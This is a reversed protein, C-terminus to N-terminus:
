FAQVGQKLVRERYRPWERQVSPWDEVKKDRREMLLDYVPKSAAKLEQMILEPDKISMGEFGRRNLLVMTNRAEVQSLRALIDIVETKKAPTLEIKEEFDRVQKRGQRVKPALTDTITDRMIERNISDAMRARELPHERKDSKSGYYQTLAWVQQDKDLSKLWVEAEAPRGRDDMLQKYETAAMTMEGGERSIMTYMEAVSESQRAAEGTVGRLLPFDTAKRDPRTSMGAVTKATQYSNQVERGWYAGAASLVFDTKVPAPILSPPVGMQYMARSLDIAFESSFAHYREHPPRSALNEGVIERSRGAFVGQRDRNFMIGGALRMVQPLGPPALVEYMSDVVREAARQDYGRYKDWMIEGINSPVALEFPKPLRFWIGLSKFWSHTWKTTDKIDQYDDDDGALAYLGMLMLSIAGWRLYSKYADALDRQEDRSLIDNSQHKFVIALHKGLVTGRDGQASMQRLQKDLGQIQANLFTVLRTAALMKSGRRNWDLIDRSVFAAETIAEMDSLDPNHAKARKYAHAAVGLRTATEFSEVVRWVEGHRAGYGGGIGGVLGGVTAGVKFGVGAGVPGGFVLGLMSGISSGAAVGTFGLLAAGAAVAKKDINTDMLAKVDRKSNAVEVNLNMGGAVGGAENYLRRFDEGAMGDVSGGEGILRFGRAQTIVPVAGTLKWATWMDRWINRFIFDPHSTVGIRLMQAPLALAKVLIDSMEKGLGNIAEFLDRGFAPDPLRVMVREGNEWLPLQPKATPGLNEPSLIVRIDGDSFNMEMRQTIMHADLPDIGLDIAMQKIKGFTEDNAEMNEARALREAVKGGGPGVREALGVMTKVIDNFAIQQATSYAEESLVELPMLISRDSGDFKKFMSWKKVGSGPFMQGAGEIDSMDRWFPVYWDRRKALEDFLEQSIFGAQRRAELLSFTFDHVLKAAEQFEPTGMERIVREHVARPEATPPRSAGASQARERDRGLRTATEDLQAIQQRGKAVMDRRQAIEAELTTSEVGLESVERSLNEVLRLAQQQDREALQRSRQRRAVMNRYNESVARSAVPDAIEGALRFAEDAEFIDDQIGQLRDQTNELRTEATGLMRRRDSLLANTRTLADQRRDLTAQDRAIREAITPRAAALRALTDDYQKVTAAKQDLRNYEEIARISVLYQNFAKYKAMDFKGDGMARDLAAKLSPGIIQGTELDSVGKELWARGRSFAGSFLRLKKYFNDNVKISIPRGDADRIGNADATKLLYQVGKAAVNLGDIVGQYASSLKGSVNDLAKDASLERWTTGDYQSSLGAAVEGIPASKIYRQYEQQVTDFAGLMDPREAELLEEFAETMGPARAEAAQPDLIYSEFWRAFGESLAAPMANPDGTLAEAYSQKVVGLDAGLISELYHGGEHALTKIDRSQRVSVNGTERDFQGRVNSPPRVRASRTYTRGDKSVQDQRVTFGWLGQSVPMGLTKRLDSIIKNLGPSDGEPTAQPPTPRLSPMWDRLAFMPQAGRPALNGIDFPRVVAATQKELDARKIIELDRPDHRKLLERYAIATRENRSARVRAETEGNRLHLYLNDGVLAGFQPDSGGIIETALARIRAKAATADKQLKTEGPTPPPRVRPSADVDVRRSLPSGLLEAVDVNRLTVTPAEAFGEDVLRAWVARITEASELNVRAGETYEDEPRALWKAKERVNVDAMALSRAAGDTSVGRLVMEKTLVNNQRLPPRSNIVEDYIEGVREMGPFSAKIGQEALLIDADATDQTTWPASTRREASSMDLRDMVNRAEVEGYAAKYAQEVVRGGGWFDSHLMSTSTVLADRAEHLAALRNHGYGGSEAKKIESEIDSIAIANQEAVVKPASGRSFGEVDQIYHQVEHAIIKRLTTFDDVDNVYARIAGGDIGGRTGYYEGFGVELPADRLAPYNQYLQGHKYFDGLRGNWSGQYRRMVGDFTDEQWDVNTTDITAKSDDIEFRWKNDRGRYWGTKEFISKMSQRQSALRQAEGLASLDAGLARDGAISAMLLGGGDPMRVIQQDEPVDYDLWPARNARQEPTLSLRKQVTRSEVEGAFRRYIADAISSPTRIDVTTWSTDNESASFDAMAAAYEPTEMATRPSAGEAFGEIDQLGHQAEHLVTSRRDKAKKSVTLTSPLIGGPQFSGEFSRSSDRNFEVEAMQPYAKFLEEHTLELQLLSFDPGFARLKSKSDDIEFRWRGDVGKFWGTQKWIDERPEGAADMEKAANLANLDATTAREGAFAAMIMPPASGGDPSFRRKLDARLEADQAEVIPRLRDIEAKMAERMEPPDSLAKNYKASLIDYQTAYDEGAVALQYQESMLTQFKTGWVEEIAPRPGIAMAIVGNEGMWERTADIGEARRAEAEEFKRVFDGAWISEFIDNASRFGLGNLANQIAELFDRIKMFVREIPAAFQRGNAWDAAAHAVTEEILLDENGNLFDGYRADIQYLQRYTLKGAQGIQADYAEQDIKGNALLSDLIRTAEAKKPRRLAIGALADWEKGKLINLRRLLHIEEHTFTQLAVDPGYELSVAILKKASGADIGLASMAAEPSVTAGELAAMRDGLAARLTSRVALGADSPLREALRQLAGVVMQADLDRVRLNSPSVEPSFGHLLASTLDNGRREAAARIAPMTALEFTLGTMIPKGNSGLRGDAVPSIYNVWAEIEDMGAQKAALVRRHGDIVRLSGDERQVVEIPPARLGDRLWQAYRVDDGRKMPDLGNATEPTSLDAIKVKVLHEIEQGHIGKFPDIRWSGLPPLEGAFPVERSSAKKTEGEVYQSAIASRYAAGDMYAARDAPPRVGGFLPSQDPVPEGVYLEALQQREGADLRRDAAIAGVAADVATGSRALAEYHGKVVPDDISNLTRIAYSDAPPAAAIQIRSDAANDFPMASGGEFQSSTDSISSGSTRSSRSEPRQQTMSGLPSINRSDSSPGQIGRPANVGGAASSTDSFKAAMEPLSASLKSIDARADELGAYGSNRLGAEFANTYLRNSSLLDARYEDYRAKLEDGSANRWKEFFQHGGQKKAVDMDAFVIYWEILQGNPARLDFGAFRWGWEKPELMKATDIKVIRYGQSLIFEAAKEIQEFSSIITKFRLTDRIHAIAHWPKTALISPRKSKEIITENKKINAKSVTGLAADMEALQADLVPKTEATLAAIQRLQQKETANRDIPNVISELPVADEEVLSTPAAKAPESAIEAKRIAEIVDGKKRMSKSPKGILALHIEDLVARTAKKDEALKKLAANRSRTNSGAGLLAAAHKYAVDNTIRELRVEAARGMPVSTAARAVEAQPSPAAQRAKPTRVPAGKRMQLRGDAVAEAILAELQPATLEAAAGWNSRKEKSALVEAFRTREADTVGNPDASVESAVGSRGGDDAPRVTAPGAGGDPAGDPEARAAFLNGQNGADDAVARNRAVGLVDTPSTDDPILGGGQHKEAEQAYRNLLETLKARSLPRSLNDNYFSKLLAEVLPDLRDFADQQALFAELPISRDRLDAIRRATEVLQPTIDFEPSTQGAAISQKLNIFAGAADRLAGTINRINDDTSELMRSLLDADGYAAALVAASMRDDGEKTLVGNRSVQGRESDTVVNNLFARFFERNETSTFSGGTYLQMIGPGAARADRMARETASMGALSSRNSLDAIKILDERSPSGAMRQILVPREMGAAAPGLAARYAAARDALAPNSYVEGISMVRGNGSIITGDPAVVPAGGDSVRGPMLRTPDLSAARSLVGAESEQRSRDRPQFEGSALRLDAMDVLETTVDFETSGDPTVLRRSEGITPGTQAPPTVETVDTVKAAQPAAPAAEQTPAVTPAAPASVAEPAATAPTPAAERPAAPTEGRLQQILAVKEEPALQGYPRGQLVEFLPALDPDGNTDPPLVALIDNFTPVPATSSPGTEASPAAPTLPQEVSEPSAITEGGIEALLREADQIAPESAVPGRVSGEGPGLRPTPGEQSPAITRTDAEPPTARDGSPEAPKPHALSDHVGKTRRVAGSKILWMGIEKATQAIGGVGAGVESGEQVGDMLKQDPNYIERAILNQLFNQGGEQVGEIFAQGGIRGIAQAVPRKLAPPLPLPLRGMLVEVPLLDTAGPGIGLMGALTIQDESLGPRGAAREKRDFEVARQTAEGVGAGGFAIAAPVTGFYAFPLGAVLSGLGEGIQRGKAEEYGPAAPILEKGFKQIKEGAKYFPRDQVRTPNFAQTAEEQEERAKIRQEPTMHRYGVADDMEPVYEGRDIRNMVDLQNRGFKAAGQQGRATITDPSAVITGGFQIAGPVIGKIGEVYQQPDTLGEIFSAGKEANEKRARETERAGVADDILKRTSGPLAFDMPPAHQPLVTAPAEEPEDLADLQAAFDLDKDVM